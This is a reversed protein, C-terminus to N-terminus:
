PPAATFNKHVAAPAAWPLFARLERATLPRAVEGRKSLFAELASLPNWSALEYTQVITWADAALQAAAISRSGYCGKRLVVPRRLHREAVNNDIDSIEPHELFASLGVWERELTALVKKAADPLQPDHAEAKRVEDM